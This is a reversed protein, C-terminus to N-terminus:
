CVNLAGHSGLHVSHRELYLEIRRCLRRERRACAEMKVPSSVEYWASTVWPRPPFIIPRDKSEKSDLSGQKVKQSQSWCVKGILECASQRTVEWNRPQCARVKRNRGTCDELGVM